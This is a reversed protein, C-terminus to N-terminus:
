RGDRERWHKVIVAPARSRWRRVIDARNLRKRVRVQRLLVFMPVVGANLIERTRRVRGSGLLSSNVFARDRVRGRVMAQARGVRAFVLLRGRKSRQVFSDTMESPQYLVRGGRRGGKRNFLTPIALYRGSKARIVGGEEFAALASRTREGGKPYILASSEWPGRRGGYVRVRWVRALKGLGAREGDKRLDAQLGRGSERLGARIARGAARWEAAVQKRLDGMVAAGLRM